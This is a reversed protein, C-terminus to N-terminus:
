VHARGIEDYNGPNDWGYYGWTDTWPNWEWATGNWSSWEGWGAGGAFYFVYEPLYSASFTVRNYGDANAGSGPTQDTDIAVFFSLDGPNDGLYRNDVDGDVRDIGVYLNDEDWTIYLTYTADSYTVIEFVEDADWDSTINGDLVPTNFTTAILPLIILLSLLTVVIKKM